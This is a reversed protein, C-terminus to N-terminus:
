EIRAIEFPDFGYGKARLFRLSAHGHSDNYTHAHFRYDLEGDFHEGSPFAVLTALSAAKIEGPTRSNSFQRALEQAKRNSQSSLIEMLKGVVRPGINIPVLFNARWHASEGSRIISGSLGSEALKEAARHLSTNDPTDLDAVPFILSLGRIAPDRPKLITTWSYAATRPRPMDLPLNSLSDIASIEFGEARISRFQHVSPRGHPLDSIIKIVALVDFPPSSVNGLMKLGLLSRSWLELAPPGKAWAVRLRRNRLSDLNPYIYPVEFRSPHTNKFVESWKLWVDGDSVDANKTDSNEWHMTVRRSSGRHSFKGWRGLGRRIEGNRTQLRDIELTQGM